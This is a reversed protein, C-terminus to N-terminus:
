PLRLRMRVTGAVPTGIASLCKGIAVETTATTGEVLGGALTGLLEGAALGAAANAVCEGDMVIWGYSGAAIGNLAIGVVDFHTDDTADSRIVEYSTTGAPDKVICCEYAAILAHAKVFILQRDGKLGLNTTNDTHVSAVVEDASQLAVTGLPYQEDTYTASFGSGDLEASKFQNGLAM